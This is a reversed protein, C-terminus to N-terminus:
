QFIKKNVLNRRLNFVRKGEKSYNIEEFEATQRSAIAALFVKRRNTALDVPRNYQRCFDYDDKGLLWYRTDNKSVALKNIFVYRHQADFIAIDAPINNLLNEYFDKQDQVEKVAQKIELSNKYIWLHGSFEPHGSILKYDRYISTGDALFFEKSLVDIKHQYTAAISEIFQEPNKFLHASKKAADSCNSGTIMEPAVPINFLDCFNQNFFIIENDFSEFLIAHSINNLLFQLFSIRQENNNTTTASM